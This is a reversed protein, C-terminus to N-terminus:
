RGRHEPFHKRRIEHLYMISKRLQKVIIYEHIRYKSRDRLINFHKVSHNLRKYFYVKKIIM